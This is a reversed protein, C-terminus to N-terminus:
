DGSTDSNERQNPIIIQSRKHSLSYLHELFNASAEIANDYLM